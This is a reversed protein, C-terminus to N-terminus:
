ESATDAATSGGPSRPRYQRNLEIPPTCNRKGMTVCTQIKDWDSFLVSLWYFLAVGILVILLMLYERLISSRPGRGSELPDNDNAAAATVRRGRTQLERRM